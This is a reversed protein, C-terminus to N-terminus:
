YLLFKLNRFFSISSRLLYFSSGFEHIPLTLIYINDEQQFCDLSEISDEDFNWSLEEYFSSIAFENPFVLIGPFQFIRLLLLVEPPIVKGSMLSYYM